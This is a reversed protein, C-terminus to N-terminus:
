ESIFSKLKNVWAYAEEQTDVITKPYLPKYKKFFLNIQLKYGISSTVVASGKVYANAEADSGLYSWIEPSFSGLNKSLLNILYYPKYDMVENIMLSFETIEELTADHTGNLTVEGISDSIKRFSGIRCELIVLDSM